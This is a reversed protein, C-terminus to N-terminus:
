KEPRPAEIFVHPHVLHHLLNRVDFRIEEDDDDDDGGDGYPGHDDGGGADDIHVHDTEWIQKPEPTGVRDQIIEFNSGISIIFGSTLGMFDTDYIWQQWPKKFGSTIGL